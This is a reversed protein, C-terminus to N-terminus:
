STRHAEGPMQRRFRGSVVEVALLFHFDALKLDVHTSQIQTFLASIIRNNDEISAEALRSSLALAQSPEVAPNPDCEQDAM